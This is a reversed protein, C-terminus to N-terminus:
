KKLPFISASPQTDIEKIAVKRRTLQLQIKMQM